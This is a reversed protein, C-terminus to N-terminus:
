LPKVRYYGHTGTAVNIFDGHSKDDLTVVIRRPSVATVVGTGFETSVAQGETFM